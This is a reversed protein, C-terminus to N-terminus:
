GAVAGRGSCRCGARLIRLLTRRQGCSWGLRPQFVLGILRWCLWLPELVLRRRPEGLQLQHTHLAPALAQPPPPLALHARARVQPRLRQGLRRPRRSPAAHAPRDVQLVRARRRRHPAQPDPHPGRRHRRQSRRVPRHHRKEQLRPDDHPQPGPADAAVAPHPGAGTDPDKRRLQVGGRARAAMQRTSWCTAADPPEACLTDAVIAVGELSLRDADSVVFGATM